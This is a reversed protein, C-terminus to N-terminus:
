NECRALTEDHSNVLEAIFNSKSSYAILMQGLTPDDDIVLLRARTRNDSMSNATM